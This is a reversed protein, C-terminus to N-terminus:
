GIRKIPKDISTAYKGQSIVSHRNIVRPGTVTWKTLDKKDFRCDNCL